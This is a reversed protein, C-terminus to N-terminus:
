PIIKMYRKNLNAFLLAASAALIIVSIITLAVYVDDMGDILYGNGAALKVYNFVIAFVGFGVAVVIGVFLAIALNKNAKVMEGDGAVNFTPSKVDAWVSLCTLAMTIMISIGLIAFIDEIRILPNKSAPGFALGIALVSFAVSIVAVISYLVFKSIVQTSFKMPIIKTLYFESGERSITTAAFSVIMTSFIIIVLLSLGPVIKPGVSASGFEVALNNCYYVMVPAAVAMALYQFSYNFSRYILLFERRLSAEFQTHVNMHTKRKFSEKTGEIGWLITKYYLKVTVFFGAALLGLTILVVYLFSLGIEKKSLGALITGSLMNAYWKFPYAMRGFTKYNAIMQPSFISVSESQFYRLIMRIIEMYAVFVGVLLAILIILMLLHKNKLKNVVMMVPVALINALSFPIFSILIIDVLVEVYYGKSITFGTNSAVIGFSVYFPLMLILCVFVNHIFCYISKSLLIEAATVPFQLLLENDGNMYLNKIVTVISIITALIMTIGTVMVLWEYGLGSRKVFINTLEYIGFVVVGYIIISFLINFVRSLIDKKSIDRRSGFRGRIDLRILARLSSGYISSQRM